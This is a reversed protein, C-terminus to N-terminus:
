PQFLSVIIRFGTPNNGPDNVWYSNNFPQNPGTNGRVPVFRVHADGFLANVGAPKGSIKHSLSSISQLVDSSVSKNPDIDTTKIPVPENLASQTPDGPNPSVFTMKKETLAPLYFIGYASTIKEVQKAQPYYNYSCRVYPNADANYDAPISPWPWNPESYTDYAYVGSKVSPCYFAKPDPIAKSFYLVGFGYPGETIARSAVGQIRCAEYTQWPNGTGSPPADKWSRQPLYDSSDAAYVNMGIGIQRLNNACSARLAKEKAAALAPLLMAALIAIIAIVVLLEILTFGARPKRVPQSAFRMNAIAYSNM